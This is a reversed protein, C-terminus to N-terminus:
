ESNGAAVEAESLTENMSGTRYGELDLAVYAFGVNKAVELIQNRVENLAFRGIAEAEVEIRAVEGHHRVRIQKFGLKRLANEVRDVARLKDETIKSGYPFRSALCAFAPKEATPLRMRRSLARIESKTLGAELLPSAVGLEKAARRGPRYDKSDDANTGDAIVKIGHRDAIDRIVRFLEGKCYYCRNVPNEAFGPIDLENSEVLEHRLGLKAAFEVAEKQERQPYTPSLATVALAKPGLEETAVAALFTSDVGGSFAIVIGGTKKLSKRLAALKAGAADSGTQPKKKM